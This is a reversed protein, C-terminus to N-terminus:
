GALSLRFIDNYVYYGMEGGKALVFCETFMLPNGDDIKLEGSVYAVIGEGQTPQCDCTNVKHEVKNFSTLKGYIQEQGLFQEGEFTLMSQNSFLKM